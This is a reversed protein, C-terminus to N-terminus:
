DQNTAVAWEPALPGRWLLCFTSAKNKLFPPMQAEVQIVEDGDRRIALYFCAHGWNAGPELDVFVIDAYWPAEIIVDGFKVRVRAYYSQRDLYVVSGALRCTGLNDRVKDLIRQEYETM